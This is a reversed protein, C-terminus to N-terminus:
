DFDDVRRRRRRPTPANNSNMNILVVVGAVGVLVLAAVLALGGLVLKASFVPTFSQSGTNTGTAPPTSPPAEPLTMPESEDRPAPPLTVPGQPAAGADPNNPAGPNAGPPMSGNPPNMPPMGGNAPPNSPGFGNIFKVGCYPCSGPPLGNGRGVERGCKGCTWVTEFMPGSPMHPGFGGGPNNQGFPSGPPHIGGPPMFPPRPPFGPQASVPALEGLLFWFAAIGLLGSWLTCTTRLM